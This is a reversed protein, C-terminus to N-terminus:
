KGGRQISSVMMVIRLMTEKLEDMEAVVRERLRFPEPPPVTVLSGGHIEQVVALQESERPYRSYFELYSPRKIRSFNITDITKAAKSDNVTNAVAAEPATFIISLPTCNGSPETWVFDAARGPQKVSPSTRTKLFLLQYQPVTMGTVLPTAVHTLLRHVIFAQKGPVPSQSPLSAVPQSATSSVLWFQPAQPFIQTPKCVQTTSLHTPAVFRAKKCCGLLANAPAVRLGENDTRNCSAPPLGTEEAPTLMLKTIEFEAPAVREPVKVCGVLAEPTAVNLLRLISLAPAPYVSVAIEEPSVDAVERGNLIM